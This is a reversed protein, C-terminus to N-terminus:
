HVSLDRERLRRARSNQVIKAPQTEPLTSTSSKPAARLVSSTTEGTSEQRSVCYRYQQGLERPRHEVMYSREPFRRSNSKRGHILFTNTILAATPRARYTARNEQLSGTAGRQLHTPCGHQNAASDSLCCGAFHVKERQTCALSRACAGFPFYLLVQAALEYCCCWLLGQFKKSASVVVCENAFM